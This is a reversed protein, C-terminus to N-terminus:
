RNYASNYMQFAAYYDGQDVNKELKTLIRDIGGGGAQRRRSM